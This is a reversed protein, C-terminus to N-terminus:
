PFIVFTIQFLLCYSTTVEIALKYFIKAVRAYDSKRLNVSGGPFLIRFCCGIPYIEVGEGM